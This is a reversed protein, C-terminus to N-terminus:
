VGSQLNWIQFQLLAAPQHRQVEMQLAELEM